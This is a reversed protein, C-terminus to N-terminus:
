ALQEGVVNGGPQRWGPCPLHGAVREGLQVLHGPQCRDLVLDPQEGGLGSGLLQAAVGAQGRDRWRPVHDEGPRGSCGLGGDGPQDGGDVGLEAQQGGPV